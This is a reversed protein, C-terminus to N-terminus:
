EEKAVPEAPATPSLGMPMTVICCADLKEVDRWTTPDVPGSFGFEIEDGELVGLAEILYGANFLRTIEPGDYDIPIEDEGEGHETSEAAISMTNTTMKLVIGGFKDVSACSVAKVADAMVARPVRAVHESKVPIAREIPPFQADVSRAVFEGWGFVFVADVGRVMVKVNGSEEALLRRLQAVAKISLMINMPASELAFVARGIQHGNISESRIQHGDCELHLSAMQPRSEDECVFLYVKNLLDLLVAPEIEFGATAEGFAEAPPFMGSELGSLKYKRPSAASKLQLSMKADVSVAVDGTPLNKVRELLDKASVCVSGTEKVEADAAGVVSMTLDTARCSVKGDAACLLVCALVPMTSRGSAVGAARGVLDFLASKAISFKM